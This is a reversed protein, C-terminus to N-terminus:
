HEVESPDSSPGLEVFHAADVGEMELIRDVLDAGLSSDLSICMAAKDGDPHRGVVMDAINKGAEGLLTGVKGIMGPTDDNLVLLMHETLPLEFGYGDLETLVPGKRALVTGAVSRAVGDVDGSVRLGARFDEAAATATERVEVGFTEAVSTVNVYTVSEETLAQLAGRLVGMSLPRSYESIRGSVVVDVTRPLGHAYTVFTKGLNEALELYPRSEPPVPMGMDLNVASAPLEGRLAAAVAEAVAVGAKDQAERTSAGLHPTVVVNDLDFLPSETTPESAFVDVAAGAVHGSECAAALAAEDVIGGRAVNVFRVGRKMTAIAPADIMGETERTRPLHVTIFDAEELAARFSRMEVGIRAAREPSVYPDYAIIKMGFASARQAVLTGIRGLGLIALTKGHLEVGQFSGREWKGSRLSGHAMPVKRAQALLLAMTHEAASITNATPANVVLVGRETAEDLDINDVGIGARGVVRLGPAAELLAKDVSTASRVILASADAVREVLEEPSLGIAVDVEFEATLLEVGAPAIKEAIVIKDTM